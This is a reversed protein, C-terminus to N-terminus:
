VDDSRFAEPDHAIELDVIRNQLDDIRLSLCEVRSSIQDIAARNSASIRTYSDRHERIRRDAVDRAIMQVRTESTGFM